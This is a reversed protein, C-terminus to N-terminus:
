RRSGSNIAACGAQTAAGLLWAAGAAALLHKLTHGSVLGTSAFVLHDAMEMLKAAAYLSLVAWWARAPTVPATAPAPHLWLAAPVLLMPLAQLYLYPRLDGRGASESIWWYGVTLTAILLAAGLARADGRRPHVREALFACLLAACAWAIPLRDGVLTADSPAWHYITSGAATCILAIGFARWAAAGPGQVRGARMRWSGWCGAVLFPLNSLVNAANPIELWSRRDAFAHYDAWQAIPGHLWLGAGLVAAIAWLWFARSPASLQPVPHSETPM